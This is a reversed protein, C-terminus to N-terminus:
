YKLPIQTNAKAKKSIFKKHNEVKKLGVEMHEDIMVDSINGKAREVDLENAKLIENTSAVLADAMAKIANNKTATDLPANRSVAKAISLLEQTTIM